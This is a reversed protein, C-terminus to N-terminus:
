IHILSLVKDIAEAYWAFCNATARIEIGLSDDIPKGMELTVLLALEDANERILAAFNQLTAKRASPDQNAWRGDEFAARASAVAIDVDEKDCDAIEVLTAGDIPSISPFTKGTRAPAFTGDIFADSRFRLTETMSKWRNAVTTPM